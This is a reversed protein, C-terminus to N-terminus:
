LDSSFKFWVAADGATGPLPLSRSFSLEFRPWQLGFQLRRDTPGYQNLAWVTGEGMQYSTNFRWDAFRVQAAITLRQNFSSAQSFNGSRELQASFGLTAPGLAWEGSQLRTRDYWDASDFRRQWDYSLQGDFLPLQLHSGFRVQADTGSLYREIQTSVFVGDTPQWELRTGASSSTGDLASRERNTFVFSLAPDLQFRGEGQRTFADVPVSPKALSQDFGFRKLALNFSAPEQPNSGVSLSSTLGLKFAELPVDPRTDIAGVTIPAYYILPEPLLEQASAAAPLLGILALSALLPARM